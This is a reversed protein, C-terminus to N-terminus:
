SMVKVRMCECVCECPSEIVNLVRLAARHIDCATGLFVDLVSRVLNGSESALPYSYNAIVSIVFLNLIQEFLNFLHSM